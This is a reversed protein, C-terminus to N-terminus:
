KVGILQHRLNELIGEDLERMKWKMIIVDTERELVKGGYTNAKKWIERCFNLYSIYTTSSVGTGDIAEKAKLEFSALDIQQATHHELMKARLDDSTQKVREPKTKAEYKFIRVDATKFRKAM